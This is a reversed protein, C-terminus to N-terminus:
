LKTYRGWTLNDSAANRKLEATTKLKPRLRHDVSKTVNEWVHCDLCNLEPPHISVVNRQCHFGVLASRTRRAIKPCPNKHTHKQAHM